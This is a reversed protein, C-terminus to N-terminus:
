RSTGFGPLAPASGARMDKAAVAVLVATAAISALLLSTPYTAVALVALAPVGLIRSAPRDRRRAVHVLDPELLFLAPGGFVLAIYGASPDGGPHAIAFEDGVAIAILAVFVLTIAHTGVSAIGSADESVENAQLGVGEARQFYLYWLAVSALFANM